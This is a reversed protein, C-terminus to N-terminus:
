RYRNSHHIGIGWQFISYPDYLLRWYGLVLDVDYQPVVNLCIRVTTNFLINVTISSGGVITTGVGPLNSSTFYGNSDLIYQINGSPDTTVTVNTYKTNGSGSSVDGTTWAYGTITMNSQGINNIIFTSATGEATTASGIVLGPFNVQLPSVSIFPNQSVTRGTLSIAVESSFGSKSNMTFLYM